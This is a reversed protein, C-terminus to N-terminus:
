GRGGLLSPNRFSADRVANVSRAEISNSLAQIAMNLRQEVGSDAGRADLYEVNVGGGGSRSKAQQATLVTEGKQLIAPVEDGALGGTHMRRAGAFVGPNIGSRMMGGSHGVTGGSHFGLFSGVSSAMSSFGSTQWPLQGVGFFSGASGLLNGLGGGTSFLNKGMSGQGTAMATLLNEAYDLVAKGLDKWSTIQGHIAKGMLDTWLQGKDQATKYAEGAQEVARNYTDQDIYGEKLESNLDALKDNYKELPTRTQEYNKKADSFLRNQETNYDKTAEAAADAQDKMDKVYGPIKGGGALDSPMPPGYQQPTNHLDKLQQDVKAIARTTADAWAQMDQTANKNGIEAIAIAAEGAVGALVIMDRQVDLIHQHWDLLGLSMNLLGTVFQTIAPLANILATVFNGIAESNQIVAVMLKARLVAELTLIQEQAGEAKQLLDAGIVIGLDYARQRLEDFADSGGRVINVMDTAGRGFAAANLALKAQQTDMKAMSQFLLNIGGDVSQVAQLQALLAPNSKTLYAYLSGTGAQLQGLNKGFKDLSSNLTDQSVGVIKAAFQYQQLTDTTIGLAAAHKVLSDAAELNSKIFEGIVGGGVLTLMAGKLSFASATLGTMEATVGRFGNVVTALARNSTAAWSSLQTQAKGLDSAFAATNMALDIFLSGVATAM